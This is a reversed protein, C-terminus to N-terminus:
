SGRASRELEDIFAELPLGDQQEIARRLEEELPPGNRDMERIAWALAEAKYLDREAELGVIHQRLRECEAQLPNASGHDNPSPPSPISGDDAEHDSKM